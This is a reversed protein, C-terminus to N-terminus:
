RLQTWYQKKLINEAVIGMNYKIVTSYRLIYSSCIRVFVPKSIVYKRHYMSVSSSLLVINSCIQNFETCSTRFSHTCSPIHCKGTSMAVSCSTYHTHLLLYLLTHKPTTGNLKLYAPLAGTYPAPHEMLSTIQERHYIATYPMM